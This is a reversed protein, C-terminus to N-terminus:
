YKYTRHCFFKEVAVMPNILGDCPNLVLRHSGYEVIYYSNNEVAVGKHIQSQMEVCNAFVYKRTLQSLYLKADLLTYVAPSHKINHSSSKDFRTFFRTLQVTLLITDIFALNSFNPM